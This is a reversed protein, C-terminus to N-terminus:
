LGLMDACPGDVLAECPGSFRSARSVLGYRRCCLCLGTAHHGHPGSASPRLAAARCASGARPRSHRRGSTGRSPARSSRPRPCRARDHVVQEHVDFDIALLPGVDVLDVHRRQMMQALLAAPRQGHKQRRLALRHPAAGIERLGRAKAPRRKDVHQALNRPQKALFPVLDILIAIRQHLPELGPARGAPWTTIPALSSSWSAICTPPAMRGAARRTQAACRFKGVGRQISNTHRAPIRVPSSRYKLSISCVSSCMQSPPM